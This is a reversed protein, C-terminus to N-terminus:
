CLIATQLLLQRPTSGLVITPAPAATTASDDTAAVPNRGNRAAVPARAAPPSM